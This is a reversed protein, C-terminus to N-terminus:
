RRRKREEEDEEEKKNKVTRSMLFYEILEAQNFNM